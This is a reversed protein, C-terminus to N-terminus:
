EIVPRPNDSGAGSHSSSKVHVDRQPFPIEIDANIFHQNIGMHIDHTVLLRDVQDRIYVQIQFDLSSDGFGLFLARPAPDALVMEQEEAVAHMIKLAREVDSGYAIGINVTVRIIPDSLTWNVFRDTIFNKNPVVIEKNDWDVITTARIRIRAVKGTLEGITVTDGVRIPREFLLILGSIFNAVIEQLGFGLGVSLAAVMWQIQSWRAGLAGLVFTIGVATIAYQSLTTIAYRSGPQLPLRQLLGIELVGPLNKAAIFTITMIIAAVLVTALTIPEIAIGSATSVEIEWLGVSELVGLAPLAGQWIFYLSLAFSWGIINSLMMRTQSNITAIDIPLDDDSIDSVESLETQAGRAADRREKARKLALRTEALMLWRLVTSRLVITLLVLLASLLMYHTLNLATYYYGVSALVCHAVPELVVLAALLTSCRTILANSFRLSLYKLLSSGGRTLRYGYLAVAIMAAMFALRGLGYQYGANPQHEFFVAVFYAPIFVVALRNTLSLADSSVNDSWRLHQRAVGDRRLLRRLWEFGFVIPAITQCAHALALSFEQTDPAARLVVFLLWLLIAFPMSLLISAVIALITYRFRDVRTNGVRIGIVTLTQNLMRRALLLAILGIIGVGVLGSSQKIGNRANTLVIAWNERSILWQTAKFADMFTQAGVVPANPIWTIQQDLYDRYVTTLKALQQAEYETDALTRLYNSVNSALLTLTSKQTQLATTLSSRLRDLNLQGGVELGYATATEAIVGDLTSLKSLRDDIELSRLGIRSVADRRATSEQVLRRNDPASRRQDILLHGLVSSSGAYKLREQARDFAKQLEIRTSELQSGLTATASQQEIIKALERGYEANKRVVSQVLPHLYSEDDQALQAQEILSNAARRRGNLLLAQLYDTRETQRRFKLQAVKHEALTLELRTSHSLQEQELRQLEARFNSLEAENRLREAIALANSPAEGQTAFLTELEAIRANITERRARKLNPEDELMRRKDSIEQLSDEFLQWRSQEQRHKSEIEEVSLRQNSEEGSTASAGSELGLVVNHLSVLKEPGQKIIGEFQKAATQHRKTSVLMERIKIYITRLKKAEDDVGEVAFSTLRADVEELDIARTISTALVLGVAAIVTLCRVLKITM